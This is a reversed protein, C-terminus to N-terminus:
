RVLSELWRGLRDGATRVPAFPDAPRARRYSVARSAAPPVARQAIRPAPDQRLQELLQRDVKGTQRHARNEQYHMVAGETMPGPTGDIPGPNFGFSLLRTQVERVDERGLPAENAAPENPAPGISARDISAPDLSAQSGATAPIAEAIAVAVERAATASPLPPSAPAPSSSTTAPPAPAPQSDAAPAAQAAAADVAPSSPLSAAPPLPSPAASPSSPAPSPPTSPPSALVPAASATEVPSAPASSATANPSPPIPQSGIAPVFVFYALSAVTTAAAAIGLGWTLRRRRTYAQMATQRAKAAARPDSQQAAREGLRRSLDAISQKFIEDGRRDVEEPTPREIPRTPRASGPPTGGPDSGTNASPDGARPDGTM